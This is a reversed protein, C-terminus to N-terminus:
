RDSRRRRRPEAREPEAARGAEVAAEGAAETAELGTAAARELAGFWANPLVRLVELLAPQEGGFEGRIPVEVAIQDEGPSVAEAVDKALGVAMEWAVRGVSQDERDAEGRRRVRLDEVKPRAVGSFRGGEAELHTTVSFTGAEADFRAYAQLVDALAALPVDEVWANLEFRPAEAYPDVRATATLTGGEEVRGRVEVPEVVVHVDPSAARDRYHFASSGVEVTDVTVPYREILSAVWEPDIETQSEAPTPGLVYQVVLGDIRVDVVRDGRLWSRLHPRVEAREITVFPEPVADTDRVLTLDRVAGWGGFTSLDVEAVDGDYGPATALVRDILLEAVVPAAIRAVVLVVAAFLAVILVLRM